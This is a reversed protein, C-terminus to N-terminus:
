RRLTGVARIAGHLGIKQELWNARDTLAQPDNLAHGTPYWLVQKPGTAAEAYARMSDISFRDFQAFQFL